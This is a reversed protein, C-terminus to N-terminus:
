SVIDLQNDVNTVGPTCWAAYEAQHREAWTSVHGTLRIETGNVTVEVHQAEVEANRLLAANVNARADQSAVMPMPPKLEIFNGIATVGPIAAVVSEAATRQYHWAVTGSLTVEHRFVTATVSDAPVLVNGSLARAAERAIDADERMGLQHRVVIEDVIATVGHVRLVARVAATKEPFSEVQGSLTVAGDNVAIGIRDSNVESTWELERALADKLEHDRENQTSTPNKTNTM